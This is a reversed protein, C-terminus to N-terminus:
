FTMMLIPFAQSLVNHLNYLFNFSFAHSLPIGFFFSFKGLIDISFDTRHSAPVQAIKLSLLFILYYLITILFYSFVGCILVKFNAKTKHHILYITFPILFVGLAIQYMSLSCIGFITGLCFVAKSASKLQRHALFQVVFLHGSWLAFLSAMGVEFCSGWGIYIAISISYSIYIGSITLLIPEFGIIKQWKNGIRFFEELFLVWSFFSIIRSIKLDNIFTIAAFLKNFLIGSLWRGQVFFMDYNSNNKNNWLQHIEDLYAYNTFFIPYTIFILVMISILLGVYPNKLISSNM